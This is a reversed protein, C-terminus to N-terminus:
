NLEIPYIFTPVKETSVGFLLQTPPDFSGFQESYDDGGPFSGNRFIPKGNWTMVGWHHYHGYVVFDFDHINHWGAFKSRAAPTDAQVPAEHRVLGKWGKVAFTNFDNYTNKVIVNTNEKMDALLELQLAVLNDWNSERSTSGTRGHNGRCSVIQITTFHPRLQQILEWLGKTVLHVQQISSIEIQMAQSPFINEGDVLDGALVIVLEDVKHPQLLGIVRESLSDLRRLAIDVNYGDSLGTTIETLKGLHIDSLILVASEKKTNSPATTVVRRPISDRIEYLEELASRIEQNQRTSVKARESSTPSLEPLNVSRQGLTDLVTQAKSKEMGDLNPVGVDIFKLGLVKSRKRVAEASRKYGLAELVKAIERNSCTSRLFRLFEDEEKSWPASTSM